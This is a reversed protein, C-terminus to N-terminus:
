NITDPQSYSYECVRGHQWFRPAMRGSNVYYSTREELQTAERSAFAITVLACLLSSALLINAVAPKKSQIQSNGSLSLTWGAILIMAVQSAPMILLGSVCAHIVGSILSIALMSKLPPDSQSGTNSHKLLKLFGFGISVALTLVLLFAPIGWEGLIRFPFSHPHAPLRGDTDCAYQTPGSGLVPHEIADKVSFRWITNRGSTHMMSRGVSNAYLDGIQAQPILVSNLFLISSYIFIGALLGVLQYRLWFRRQGPLWLGVFVMAVFLSVFTGRAGVTLVLFWQLGLLIVCAPKIWRKGPFLLPLAALMPISWTQLQNYFRPHAFHMLALNFDFEIGLVWGALFGMFEETAVAFGMAALLVVAWRDFQLGALERSAATVAILM